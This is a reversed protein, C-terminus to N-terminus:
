ARASFRMVPNGTGLRPAIRFPEDAAASERYLAAHLHRSNLKEM